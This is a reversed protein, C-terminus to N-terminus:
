SNPNVIIKYLGIISAAAKDFSINTPRSPPKLVSWSRSDKDINSNIYGNLMVDIDSYSKVKPKEGSVFANILRYAIKSKLTALDDNYPIIGFFHLQYFIYYLQRWTNHGTSRSDPTHDLWIIPKIENIPQGTFLKTLVDFNAMHDDKNLFGYAEFTILFSTSLLAINGITLLRKDLVFGDNKYDNKKNGLPVNSELSERIPESVLKQNQKSACVFAHFLVDVHESHNNVLKNM